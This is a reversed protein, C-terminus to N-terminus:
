RRSRLHIDESVLWVRGLDGLEHLDDEAVAVPQDRDATEDVLALADIPARVVDPDLRILGGGSLIAVKAVHAERSPAAIHRPVKLWQSSKPRRKSLRPEVRGKRRGVKRQAILEFLGAEHPDIHRGVGHSLWQTWLQLAHKFSLERPVVDAHVAAQAMLTRILNYALLHVWLEKEIMAPSKCRLVDMQMTTKINRLDLEIQWRQRYLNALEDKPVDEKITTLLIKGGVKVERVCLTEPLARHEEVSMRPPRQRPRVLEVRHDRVGLQQGRRFDTKRSGHQEFLVEVGQAAMQALVYYTCFLADGLVVDGACFSGSVQRFLDLESNGKGEFPGMAADLLAGSALCTVGVLRTMPFGVGEAQSHPQPFHLQNAPTDPMSIGTGDVLKVARGRWRWQAQSQASLRHGCQRTLTAVMEITLRQRAQCYGGTATSRVSLGDALRQMAWGNVAQQCSGDQDLVQRVFM